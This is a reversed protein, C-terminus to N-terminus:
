ASDGFLPMSQYLPEDTAAPLPWSPRRPASPSDAIADLLVFRSNRNVNQCGPVLVVRSTWREMVIVGVTAGDCTIV